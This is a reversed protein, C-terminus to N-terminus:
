GGAITLSNDACSFASGVAKADFQAKISVINAYAGGIVVFLGVVLLAAHAYWQFSQKLSGTRYGPNLVMWLVAPVCIGLYGFGVGGVLSTLNGYFPIAECIIWGVAGVGYTCSLWVAWHTKTRHTLHTTNRLFRVFFSKAAVHIAIVCGASLGPIAIAYAIIKITPGASGLAVASVWKGCYAYVVLSFALYSSTIWAMCCYVSKHYDQPRRMESIVPVFGSTNASSAFIAGSASWAAAFTTGMPPIASFGLDFPGTQPAAAPRDRLTVAIVVIMVATVMSIFGAWTIWGLQHIKPISALTTVFVYAVFGFTVTCTAHKSVANLAITLGLIVVGSVLVWTFLYFFESIERVVLATRKSWGLELAATHACDPVTHVSPYKLKFRGQILACYTNVAGWFVIFIAGAVAGLVYLAAPIALVGTAFTMKTFFMSARVWGVTRFNIGGQGTVFVEAEDVSGSHRDDDVPTSVQSNPPKETDM